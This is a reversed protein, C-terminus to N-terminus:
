VVTCVEVLNDHYAAGEGFDTSADNTLSNAVGDDRHHTMWWGFPMSVVGPRVRESIRVRMELSGRDNHVRAHDDDSLGRAAADVPHIQLLPEGERGGHTPLQAYSTNLFRVHSKTTLLVLPFRSRLAADGGPGEPNPVYDPVPDLGLAALEDHRFRARGDPTAFGGEAYPLLPSPLPLRVFGDNRLRDIMDDGLPALAGAILDVDSMQMEPEDFGLARALRRFFETNPVSEGVPAIAPDNWGLYLHGWAPVVDLQEIQTTAPFVVDAYRATDTLFQEHVVTFLDDRELGRRTLETNPMSVLPNGNWVVLVTVPPGDYQTLVRGLQSQDAGRRDAGRWQPPGNLAASDFAGDFWSGSSRALGGGRERWAGTVLPLCAVTRYITAGNAHHEAGILMRIAAPRTTAYDRALTEIVDVDLGCVEAAREPPWEDLRRQLDDFGSTHSAIYDADHLGDRVIIHMLALALATDTGPLLQIFQDASEATATRLPDIVVVRAGDARAEEIVPWLHRNTIRTNTGWLLILRSHRMELPDMSRGSGYTTAVGVRAALGCVAGTMRTAGLRDFVRNSLAGLALMSQNGADSWPLVTEGGHRAIATGIREAVLTMAEDWSAPEFIGSGKPGRRVLPTTIRDPSYVRDIFKSVKPCLEGRSYPHAPNGRMSVAVGEDVEVLWGCSDPCDHHCTGHVVRSGTRSAPDLSTDPVSTM